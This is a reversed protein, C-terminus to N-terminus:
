ILFNNSFFYRSFIFIYESESYFFDKKKFGYSTGFGTKNVFEDDQSYFENEQMEKLMELAEAKRREAQEERDLKDQLRVYHNYIAVSFHRKAREQGISYQDLYKKFVKPPPISPESSGESYLYNFNSFESNAQSQTQKLTNTSSAFAKSKTTDSSQIVNDRSSTTNEQSELPLEPDTKDDINKSKESHSDSESIKKENSESKTSKKRVTKKTSTDDVQYSLPIQGLPQSAKSKVQPGERAKPTINTNQIAELHGDSSSQIDKSQKKIRPKKLSENTSSFAFLKTDPDSKKQLKSSSTHFYRQKIPLSFGLAILNTNNFLGTHAYKFCLQKHILIANHRIPRVNNANLHKLNLLLCSKMHIKNSYQSM